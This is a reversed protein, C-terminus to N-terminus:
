RRPWRIETGDPAVTWVVLRETGSDDAEIEFNVPAGSAVALLVAASGALAALLRPAM